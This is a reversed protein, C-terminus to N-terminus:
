TYPLPGPLLPHWSGPEPSTGRQGLPGWVIDGQQPGPIYLHVLGESGVQSPQALQWNVQSSHGLASTLHLQTATHPM